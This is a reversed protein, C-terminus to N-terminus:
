SKATSVKIADCTLMAKPIFLVFMTSSGRVVADLMVKVFVLELVGPNVTIVVEMISDLLEVIWDVTVEDVVIVVLVGTTDQGTLLEPVIVFVKYKINTKAM